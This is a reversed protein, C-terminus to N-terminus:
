MGDHGWGGPGLNGNKDKRCVKCCEGNVGPYPFKDPQDADVKHNCNAYSVIVNFALFKHFVQGSMYPSEIHNSSCCQDVITKAWLAIGDCPLAM